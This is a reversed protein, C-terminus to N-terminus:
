GNVTMIGWNGILVQPIGSNRLVYISDFRLLRGFCKRALLKLGALWSPSLTHLIFDSKAEFKM